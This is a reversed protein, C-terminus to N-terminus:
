KILFKDIIPKLNEDLAKGFSDWTPLIGSQRLNAERMATSMSEDSILKVLAKAIESSNKQEVIIANKRDEIFESVIGVNTTVVCLGHCMAEILSKGYGEFLSAQVLIDAQCYFNSLKDRNVFGHFKIKDQLKHKDIFKLLKMYYSDHKSYNGVIDLKVDYNGLKSIAEIIYNIGKVETCEGVCLISTGILNKSDAAVEPIKVDLGPNAIVSLMDHKVIKKVYSLTFSSNVLILDAILFIYRESFRVLMRTFINKYRFSMRLGLMIVVIKKKKHKAWALAPLHRIGSSIDVVLLEPDLSKVRLYSNIMHRLPNHNKKDLKTLKDPMVVPFSSKFYEFIKVSTLEGGRRGDSIHQLFLIL